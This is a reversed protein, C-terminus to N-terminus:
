SRSALSMCWARSRFAHALCRRPPPTIHSDRAGLASPSRAHAATTPEQLFTSEPTTHLPFITSSFSQRTPRHLTQTTTETHTFSHTLRTHHNHISPLTSTACAPISVAALRWFLRKLSHTCTDRSVRLSTTHVVGIWEGCCADPRQGRATYLNCQRSQLLRYLATNSDTHAHLPQLPLCTTGANSDTHAHLASPSTTHPRPFRPNTVNAPSPPRGSLCVRVHTACVRVHQM